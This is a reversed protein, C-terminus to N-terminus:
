FCPKEAQRKAEYMLISAAVSANLSEVQGEMPIKILKHAKGSIHESLGNGENGILFATSGTYLGDAYYENGKLHAAYITVNNESLTDLTESLDDSVIVPVRYISGMTSRIVKSNYVDVTEKNVIIGAIGAGEGTRVITGLNGPDQISELVMFVQNKKKNLIESLKYEKQRVVALIGQPTVTDSMNKFVNDSVIFYDQKNLRKTIEASIKGKKVNDEYFKESLYTAVLENEPVEEYMRTGEVVYLKQKKRVSAKTQLQVVAKIKENSPSSIRMKKEMEGFFM